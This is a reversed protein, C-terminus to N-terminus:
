VSSDRSLVDVGQPGRVRYSVGAWKIERSGLATIVCILHFGWWLPRMWREVRWYRTLNASKTEPWLSSVIRHRCRFRFEGLIASSALATIALADGNFAFIVAICAAFAPAAMVLFAFLWLGPM